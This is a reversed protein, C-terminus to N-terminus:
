GGSAAASNADRLYDKWGVGGCFTCAQEDKCGTGRCAFCETEAGYIEWRGNSLRLHYRRREQRKFSLRTTIVKAKEGSVEAVSFMEPNKRRLAHAALLYKQYEAAYFKQYIVESCRRGAEEAAARQALCSEMFQQASEM